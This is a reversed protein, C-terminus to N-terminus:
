ARDVQLNRSRQVSSWKQAWEVSEDVSGNFLWPKWRCHCLNRRQRSLAVDDARTRPGSACGVFEHCKGGGDPGCKPPTHSRSMWDHLRARCNSSRARVTLSSIRIVVNLCTSPSRFLRGNVCMLTSGSSGIGSVGNWKKVTPGVKGSPSGRTMEVRFLHFIVWNIVAEM